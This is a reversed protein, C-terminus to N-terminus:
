SLEMTRIAHGAKESVFELDIAAGARLEMYSGPSVPFGDAASVGSEGIFMKRNDNNYIFLYKRDTLPSAVADEATNAVALTNAATAIDTNALAADNITVPNSDDIFVNLAGATSGIANGTGDHTWSDVSDKSADLDSIVWPSTGQTVEINTNSIHVDLALDGNESTSTFFSTGDGLRVSDETHDLDVSVDISSVVNVDLAQDAGVLTSTLATGAGDKLTSDVALREVTNITAHDILTGDSSRVFAGVSDSDAITNANTVDFILQDKM